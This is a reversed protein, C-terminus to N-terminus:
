GSFVWFVSLVRVPRRIPNLVVTTELNLINEGLGLQTPIRM